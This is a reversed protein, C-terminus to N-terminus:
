NTKNSYLPLFLRKEEEDEGYNFTIILKGREHMDAWKRQRESTGYAISLSISELDLVLSSCYWSFSRGIYVKSSSVWVLPYFRSCAHSVIWRQSIYILKQTQERVRHARVISLLLYYELHPCLIMLMSESVCVSMLLFPVTLLFSPLFLPFILCASWVPTFHTFRLDQKLLM